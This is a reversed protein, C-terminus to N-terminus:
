CSSRMEGYRFVAVLTLLAMGYVEQDLETQDQVLLFLACCNYAYVVVSAAPSVRSIIRMSYIATCSVLAVYSVVLANKPVSPVQRQWELLQLLGDRLLFEQQNVNFRLSSLQPTTVLHYVCLALYCPFSLLSVVSRPITCLVALGLAIWVLDEEM